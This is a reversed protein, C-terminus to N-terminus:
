HDYHYSGGKKLNANDQRRAPRANADAKVAQFYLWGIPAEISSRPGKERFRIVCPPGAHLEIIINPGHHDAPIPTKRKVKNKLITM